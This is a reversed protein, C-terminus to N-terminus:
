YLIMAMGVLATPRRTFKANTANFQEPV